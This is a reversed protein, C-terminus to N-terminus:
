ARSADINMELLKKQYAWGRKPPPANTDMLDMFGFKGEEFGTRVLRLAETV